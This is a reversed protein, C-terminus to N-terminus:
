TLEKYSFIIWIKYVSDNINLLLRLLCQDGLIVFSNLIRCLFLDKNNLVGSKFARFLRRKANM